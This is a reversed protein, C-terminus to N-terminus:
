DEQEPTKQKYYSNYHKYRDGTLSKDDTMVIGLIKSDAFEFHEVADRLSRKDCYDCRVVLVIGDTLPAVVVPDTVVTVPPLDVIVYDFAKEFASIAKKMNDSALLESPSPPAEGATLVWLNVGKATTYKQIVDSLKYEGALLNSLGKDPTLQLRDAITPLRMDAEVLLVKNGTQAFTYAINIASTTKGEGKISSTVGIVKGLKEGSENSGKNPISLSIKTRLMKYAESHMFGLNDGITRDVYRESTTNKVSIDAVGIM